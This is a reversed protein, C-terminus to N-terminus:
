NNKENKRKIRDILEYTKYNLKYYYQYLKKSKFIKYIYDLVNLQANNNVKLINQSYKEDYDYTGKIFNSEKAPNSFFSNFSEKSVIMKNSNFSLLKNQGCNRLGINFFYINGYEFKVFFSPDKKIYKSNPIKIIKLYKFKGFNKLCFSLLHSCNNTLGRSYFFYCISNKKFNKKLNEYDKLYNRFYNVLIKIKKNKIIKLIEKFQKFDVGGPKELLCFKYNTNNLSKIVDLHSSTNTSIIVLDFNIKKKILENTNSFTEKKYLKKFRDRKKQDKDVAAVIEFYKSRSVSKCHSLITNNKDLDYNLGINGLGIIVTKIKYKSLMEKLVKILILFNKTIKIYNL